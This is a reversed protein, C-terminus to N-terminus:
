VRSPRPEFGGSQNDQETLWTRDRSVREFHKALQDSYHRLVLNEAWLMARIWTGNRNLKMWKEPFFSFVVLEVTLLLDMPAIPWRPVKLWSAPTPEVDGAPNGGFQLHWVPGEQAESRPAGPPAPNSLDLHSRSILKEGRIEFVEVTVVSTALPAQQWVEAKAKEARQYSAETSLDIRLVRGHYDIPGLSLLGRNIKIKWGTCRRSNKSKRCSQCPHICGKVLDPDIPVQLLGAESLLAAVAALEEAAGSCNYPDEAV